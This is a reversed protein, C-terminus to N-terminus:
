NGKANDDSRQKTILVKLNCLIIRATAACMAWQTRGERNRANVLERVKANCYEAEMMAIETCRRVAVNCAARAMSRFLDREEDNLPKGLFRPDESYIALAVAEILKDADTM